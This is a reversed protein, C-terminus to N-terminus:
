WNESLKKNGQFVKDNPDLEYAKAYDRKADKRRGLKSYAVGRNNYAEADNPELAIAKNYCEVAKSYEGKNYHALGLNYYAM